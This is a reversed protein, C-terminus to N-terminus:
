LTILKTGNFNINYSLFKDIRQQPQDSTECTFELYVNEFLHCLNMSPIFILDNYMANEGRDTTYNISGCLDVECNIIINEILIKKALLSEAIKTSCKFLNTNQSLASYTTKIHTFYNILEDILIVLEAWLYEDGIFNIAFRDRKPNKEFDLARGMTFNNQTLTTLLYYFSKRIINKNGSKFIIRLDVHMKDILTSYSSLGNGNRGPLFPLSVYDRFILESCKFELVIDRVLSITNFWVSHPPFFYNLIIVSM